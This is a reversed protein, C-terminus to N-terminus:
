LSATSSGPDAPAPRQAILHDWQWGKFGTQTNRLVPIMKSVWDAVTAPREDPNKKLALALAEQVAPDAGPLTSALPAPEESLVRVLVEPISTGPFAVRGTLLEYVVAALSFLDSRQDMHLGRIQEPSMYSPSGLLVGTQTLDTEKGISKALGFDVIKAQFRGDIPILYLNAPKLDRHIIDASHANGLADGVQTLMEAVQSPSAPGQIRLNRAADVGELFEMVYFLSGDALEGLDFLSVIGPHRLRAVIRAEREWRSRAHPDEMLDKRLIKIAVPRTLKEDHAQFVTGTSGQGLLRVLRYRELIRYPLIRPAQLAGGDAKCADATHDYCLGCNACVQVTAIGQQHLEQIRVERQERATALNERMARVELASGLQNAFGTVLRRETDGWAINKGSVVLAGYVDGNTGTVPIMDGPQGAELNRSAEQIQNMSPAHTQASGSAVMAEGKRIWVDIAAAGVARAIDEAITQSWVSISEVAQPQKDLLRAIRKQADILRENVLRLEVTKEAVAKQLRTIRFRNVALGIGAAAFFCLV